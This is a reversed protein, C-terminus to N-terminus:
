AVAEWKYHGQRPVMGFAELTSGNLRPWGPLLTLVSFVFFVKRFRTFDENKLHNEESLFNKM